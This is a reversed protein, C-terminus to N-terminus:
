GAPQLEICSAWEAPAIIDRPAVEVHLVRRHTPAMAPSSAHLLLPRMGVITGRTVPLAVSEDQSVLDEIDSASLVGLRHSGPIVRLAGDSTGCDDLHIRLAIMSELVARPPQVSVVGEKISWARFGLAAVRGTVSVVRDQHFPVKWNADTTKDFLTAKVAVPNPSIIAHVLKRIPETTLLDRVAQFDIINRVGGRRPMVAPLLRSIVVCADPEIYRHAIFYGFSELEQQFRGLASEARELDSSEARIMQDLKEAPMRSLKAELERDYTRDNPDSSTRGRRAYQRLFAGLQREIRMRRGSAM